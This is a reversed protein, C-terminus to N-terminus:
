QKQKTVVPESRKQPGKCTGTEMGAAEVCCHSWMASWEAEGFAELGLSPPSSTGLAIIQKAFEM